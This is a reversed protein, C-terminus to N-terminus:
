PTRADVFSISLSISLSRLAFKVVLAPLSAFLWRLVWLLVRRVQSPAGGRRSRLPSTGHAAVPVTTALVSDMSGSGGRRDETSRGGSGRKLDGSGVGRASCKAVDDTAAQPVGREALPFLPGRRHGAMADGRSMLFSVPVRPTLSASVEDSDSSPRICIGPGSSLRIGQTRTSELHVEADGTTVHAVQAATVHHSEWMVPTKSVSPPTPLLAAADRTGWRAPTSVHRGSMLVVGADQAAASDASEELFGAFTASGGHTPHASDPPQMPPTTTGFPSLAASPPTTMQTIAPVIASARALGPQKQLEQAVCASRPRASARVSAGASNGARRGGTPEASHREVAGGDAAPTGPKHLFARPPTVPAAEARKTRQWYDHSRTREAAAAQRRREIEQLERQESSLM